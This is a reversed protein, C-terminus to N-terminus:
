AARRRERIQRELDRDVADAMLARIEASVTRERRDAVRRFDAALVRPVIVTLRMYPTGVVSQNKPLKPPRGHAQRVPKATARPSRM